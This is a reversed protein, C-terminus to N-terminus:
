KKVYYWYEPFLNAFPNQPAVGRLKNAVETLQYDANPQWIVPLQKAIYDQYANLNTNTDTTAKILSDAKGNSYNTSNSGAGTAFLTEGSPYYDPSYEWGGGWWGAEVTCPSGPVCPQVYNQIVTTFAQGELNTHIGISNWASQEVTAIQSHWQIGTAYVFTFTLPTGKPIGAGCQSPGTGPKQCTDTGNAVVKWGHSTLLDKAKSPNYAYPNSQEFKDVLNNQPLVPVPGYTPVGYGKLFKTIMQPQDIMYQMAQRVYLQSFIKGATGNNGTSDFKTVGYNFGYLVWPTMYYNTLKPNNAAPQTANSTTATADQNPLWGIDLNGGLLSNFEASDSTFPLEQVTVTAKQSGTYASNPALTVAGSTQFSGGKSSAITYPGDVITWIPSSSYGAINQAQATLFNYVNTCAKDTAADGYAGSYCGGSGPTGGTATVDWAQPFPTIQSFENYTVWTPDYSQNFTITISTPSNVTVSKVNDPFYGPTYDFWNATEAHLMNMFFLVDNATVAEGNSWKMNKLAITATTDSNSYTPISALSLSPNLTTKDSNPFGFMYLPRYLMYQLQSINNVSSTAGSMFPFIYNPIAGGSPEAWRVTGGSQKTGGTPYSASALSSTGVLMLAATTVAVIGLMFTKARRAPHGILKGTLGM